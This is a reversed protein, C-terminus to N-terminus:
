SVRRQVEHSLEALETGGAMETTLEDLTVEARKKDLVREGLKLIFVVGGPRRRSRRRHVEASRWVKTSRRTRSWAM